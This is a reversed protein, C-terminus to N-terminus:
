FTGFIRDGADGLGPLIYGKSNLERDLAATFIKTGPHDSNIKQVGEPAAVICVFICDKAGIEKLYKLGSSGSGGTALMPDLLIVKSSSLEGPSKSYYGIPQLTEENRKIGIHGVQADPIMDLFGEAMGLGARLVPFLVIKQELRHGTTRELPTKIEIEEIEIDRSVEVALVASIRRLVRRFEEPVTSADRLITIDKKILSHQILKLNNLTIFSNNEKDTNIKM